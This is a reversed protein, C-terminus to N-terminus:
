DLLYSHPTAAIQLRRPNDPVILYVRQTAREGIYDIEIERQQQYGAEDQWSVQGRFQHITHDGLNQVDVPLVYGGEVAQSEDVRAAIRVPVAEVQERTARYILYGATALVLVASIAM